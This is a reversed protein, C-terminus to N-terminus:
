AAVPASATTLSTVPIPESITMTSMGADINTLLDWDPHGPVIVVATVKSRHTPTETTRAPTQNM